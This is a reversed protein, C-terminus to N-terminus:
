PHTMRTKIKSSSPLRTHKRLHRALVNKKNIGLGQPLGLRVAGIVGIRIVSDKLLFLSM